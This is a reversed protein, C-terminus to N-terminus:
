KKPRKLSKLIFLLIEANYDLSCDKEGLFRGNKDHVLIKDGKILLQRGTPLIISAQEDNGMKSTTKEM